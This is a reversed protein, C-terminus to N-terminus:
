VSNGNREGGKAKDLAIGFQWVGSQRLANVAEWFHRYQKASLHEHVLRPRNDERAYFEARDYPYMVLLWPEPNADNEYSKLLACCGNRKGGICDFLYRM